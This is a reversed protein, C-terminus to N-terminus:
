SKLIHLFKGTSYLKNYIYNIGYRILSSHKDNDTVERGLRINSISTTM